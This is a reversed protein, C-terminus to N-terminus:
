NSDSNDIFQLIQVFLLSKLAQTGAKLNKFGCVVKLFYM